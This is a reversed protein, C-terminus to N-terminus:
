LGRVERSEVHVAPFKGTKGFWKELAAIEKPTMPRPADPRLAAILPDVAEGEPLWEVAGFNAATWPMPYRTIRALCGVVGRPSVGAAYVADPEVLECVTSFAMVQKWLMFTQLRRMMAKRDGLDNPMTVALHYDGARTAMRIQWDLECQHAIILRAGRRLDAEVCAKFTAPVDPLPDVTVREGVKEGWYVLVRGPVALDPKISESM